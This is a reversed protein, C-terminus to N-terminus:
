SASVATKESVQNENQQELLHRSFWHVVREILDKQHLTERISHGERPYTVFQTDVERFRLATYLELGQSMAVRRDEEGHLILTPTRVKSVYRLPSRSWYPEPDDYPTSEFYSLNASPIDGVSNDSVMNTVGAGVVAAKFRNTQTIAWATMYGGWSWGGIGLRDPDVIGREILADVGTMTDHFEARGVENFLANTFSSGRGTSGRPNPLLVAFGRGALSQAWDYWNGTFEDGWRATPGGHVQVVLPYREGEVYDFPRYLMGEIELGDPATWHVVEADGLAAAEFVENLYTLRQTRDITREYIWVEPPTRASEAVFSVRCGDDSVTAHHPMFTAFDSGCNLTRVNIENKMLLSGHQGTELQIMVADNSAVRVLNEVTGEVDPTLHEM